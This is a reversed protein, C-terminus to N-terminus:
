IFFSSFSGLVVWTRVYMTTTSHPSSPPTTTLLSSVPAASGSPKTSWCTAGETTQTMPWWWVLQSPPCVCLSLSLSLSLPHPWVLSTFIMLACETIFYCPKIYSSSSFESLSFSLSLTHTYRLTLTHLFSFYRTTHVFLSNM